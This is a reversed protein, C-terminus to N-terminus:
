LEGKAIIEELALDEWTIQDDVKNMKRIAHRFPKIRRLISMARDCDQRYQRLIEHDTKALYYGNGDQENCILHGENRLEEILNRVERDSIGTDSAIYRRSYAAERGNSLCSLVRLKKTMHLDENSM